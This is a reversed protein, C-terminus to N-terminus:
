SLVWTVFIDCFGFLEFSDFSLYPIVHFVSYLSLSYLGFFLSNIVSRTVKIIFLKLLPLQIKTSQFHFITFSTPFAFTVMSEVCGFLVLKPFLATNIFLILYTPSKRLSYIIYM